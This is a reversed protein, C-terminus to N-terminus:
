LEYKTPKFSDGVPQCILATYPTSQPFTSISRVPLFIVSFPGGDSQLLDCPSVAVALYTM